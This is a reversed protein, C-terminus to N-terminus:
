LNRLCLAPIKLVALATKLLLIILALLLCPLISSDQFSAGNNISYTYPYIGGAPMFTIAGDANGNCLPKDLKAFPKIPTNFGVVVNGGIGPCAFADSFNYTYTGAALNNFVIPGNGSYTYPGGARYANSGTNNVAACFANKVFLTHSLTANGNVSVTFATDCGRSDLVLVPYSGAYLGTFTNSNQLSGGNIAYQYPPVGLSDTVIISISGSNNGCTAPVVSATAPLHYKRM